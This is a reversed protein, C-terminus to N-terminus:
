SQSADQLLQDLHTADIRPALRRLQDRAIGRLREADAEALRKLALELNAWYTQVGDSLQPEASPGRGELVDEVFSSIQQV